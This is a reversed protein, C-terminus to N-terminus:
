VFWERWCRLWCVVFIELNKNEETGPLFIPYLSVNDDFDKFIEEVKDDDDDDEVDKSCGKIIGIFAAFDFIWNDVGVSVINFSICILNSLSLILPILFWIWVIVFPFDSIFLNSSCNLVDGSEISFGGAVTM